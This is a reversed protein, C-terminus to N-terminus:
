WAIGAAAHSRAACESYGNSSQRGHRCHCTRTYSRRAPLFVILMYPPVVHEHAGMSNAHM